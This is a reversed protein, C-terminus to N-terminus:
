GNNWCSHDTGGGAGLGAMTVGPVMVLQDIRGGGPQRPGGAHPPGLRGDVDDVDYGHDPPEAVGVLFRDQPWRVAVGQRRRCSVRRRGADSTGSMRSSSPASRRHGGRDRARELPGFAALDDEAAAHRTVTSAVAARVPATTGNRRRRGSPGDRLPVIHPSGAPAIAAPSPLPVAVHLVPARESRVFMGLEPMGSSAGSTTR